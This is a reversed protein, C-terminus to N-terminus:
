LAYAKHFQWTCHHIQVYSDPITACEWFNNKTYSCLQYSFVLWTIGIVTKRLTITGHKWIYSELIYWSPILKGLSEQSDTHLSPRCTSSFNILETHHTRYSSNLIILETHHTWYSSNLVILDTHHPWYSPRGHIWGYGFSSFQCHICLKTYNPM